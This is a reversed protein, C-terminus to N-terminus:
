PTVTVRMRAFKSADAAQAITLTVTDSTGNNTVTIGPDSSATDAGVHYVGPWTALNTGVEVAVAVDPTMSAHDRTFTFVLNGNVVSGSPGGANAATASTGLVYEVADSLGDHDFDANPNGSLGKAAAWGQFGPKSLKIQKAGADYNVSYGTPLGTVAFTGTLTGTYSAVVYESASAASVETIALTAGTLDLNGNVTLRGGNTGDLQCALSGALTTTGTTLTGVTSGASTGPKVTGGASVTLTAATTGTGALTAGSAVTISPTIANNNIELTGGNVATTGSYSVGGNFVQTGTGAKVIAIAGGGSGGDMDRIGGNYSYSISGVTNITLVATGYTATDNFGRNEIQAKGGNNTAVLGGITEAHGNLRLFSDEQVGGSQNNSTWTVVSTDAIQEDAALVIGSANGNWATSSLRIDGPIANVGNPKALVLKGKGGLTTIGTYTNPSTGGLTVANDNLKVLGGPGSIPGTITFAIGGGSGLGSDSALTIDGAYTVATGGDNAQLAGGGNGGLGNLVLPESITGTLGGGACFRAGDAVVTGGVTSGM